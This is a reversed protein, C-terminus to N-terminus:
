THRWIHWYEPGNWFGQLCQIFGSEMENDWIREMQTEMVPAWVEM